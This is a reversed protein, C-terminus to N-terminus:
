PLCKQSPKEGREREREREGAKSDKTNKIKKEETRYLLNLRTITPPHPLSPYTFYYLIAQFPSFSPDQPILKTKRVRYYYDVLDQSTDYLYRPLTDYTRHRNSIFRATSNETGGKLIYPGDLAIPSKLEITQRIKRRRGISNIDM